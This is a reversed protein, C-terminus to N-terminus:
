HGEDRDGGASGPEYVLVRRLRAELRTLDPFPDGVRTDAGGGTAGGGDGAPVRSAIWAELGGPAWRRHPYLAAIREECRADLEPEDSPGLALGRGLHELAAEDREMDAYVLGLHLHFVPEPTRALLLAQQLDRAAEADRGLAHLIWARTDLRAATRDAYTTM